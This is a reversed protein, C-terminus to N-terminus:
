NQGIEKKIIKKAAFKLKSHIEMTHVSVNQKHSRGIIVVFQNLDSELEAAMCVCIGCDVLYKYAFLVKCEWLASSTASFAKSHSLM